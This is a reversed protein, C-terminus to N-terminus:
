AEIREGVEVRLRAKLSEAEKALLDLGPGSLSYGLDSATDFIESLVEGQHDFAVLAIADWDPTTNQRIISEYHAIIEDVALMLADEQEAEEERKQLVDELDSVKALAAWGNAITSKAQAWAIANQLGIFTSSEGSFIYDSDRNWRPSRAHLEVVYRGNETQHISAAMLDTQGWWQRTNYCYGIDM